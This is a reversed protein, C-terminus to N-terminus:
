AAAAGAERVVPVRGELATLMAHEAARRELEERANAMAGSAGLRGLWGRVRDLRNTVRPEENAATSM